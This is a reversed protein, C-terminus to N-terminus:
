PSAGSLDRRRRRAAPGLRGVGPADLSRSCGGTVAIRRDREGRTSRGPRRGARRRRHRGDPPRGRTSLGTRAVDVGRSHDVAPRVLGTASVTVGASASLSERRRAAARRSWATGQLFGGAQLRNAPPAPRRRRSPAGLDIRVDGSTMVRHQRRHRNAGPALLAGGGEVRVSGAIIQMAGPSLPDARGVARGARPQRPRLRRRGRPSTQLTTVVCPDRGPASVPCRSRASRAPASSSRPRRRPM